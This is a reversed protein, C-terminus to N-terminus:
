RLCHDFRGDPCNELRQNYEGPSTTNRKKNENKTQSHGPIMRRLEKGEKKKRMYISYIYTDIYVRTKNRKQDSPFCVNGSHVDVKTLTRAKPIRLRTERKADGRLFLFLFSLTIKYKRRRRRRGDSKNHRSECRWRFGRSHPPFLPSPSQIVPDGTPSRCRCSFSCRRLWVEVKAMQVRTNVTSKWFTEYFVDNRFIDCSSRPFHALTTCRSFCFEIICTSAIKFTPASIAEALVALFLASSDEGARRALVAM